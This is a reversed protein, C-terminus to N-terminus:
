ATFRKRRIGGFANYFFQSEAELETLGAVTYTEETGDLWTVSFEAGIVPEIGLKKLYKKSVAAENPKEPYRGETINMRMSEIIKGEDSFYVSRIEYNEVEMSSGQKYRVIDEINEDSKLNEVQESSLDGYIVHPQVAFERNEKKDMALTFGALGSILAASLAVTIIIFINRMKGSKLSRMTLKRLVAGNNNKLM